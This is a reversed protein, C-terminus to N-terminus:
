ECDGEANVLWAASWGETGKYNVKFWNDTRATVSADTNAPMTELIQGWPAQRLNLNVQTRVTCDELDTADAIDDDTEPPIIPTSIRTVTREPENVLVMAGAISMAACTQGDEHHYEPYHITRPSTAAELFVIRGIQPFCLSFGSGINSWVDVADLFGLDIVKQIGIAGPGRRQFVIGSEMGDFADLRFADLSPDFGRTSRDSGGRPSVDCRLFDHCAPM